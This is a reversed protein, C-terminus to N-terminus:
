DGLRTAVDAPLPVALFRIGGAPGDGFDIFDDGLRSTFDGHFELVVFDASTDATPVSPAFPGVISWIVKCMTAGRPDQASQPPGNWCSLPMPLILRTVDEQEDYWYFMEVSEDTAPPPGALLSPFRATIRDEVDRLRQELLSRVSQVQATKLLQQLDLREEHLQAVEHDSNRANEYAARVQEFNARASHATASDQLFAFVREIYVRLAQVQSQLVRDRSAVVEREATELEKAVGGIEDDVSRVRRRRERSEQDIDGQQKSYDGLLKERSDIERELDRIRGRLEDVEKQIASQPAVLAGKKAELEQLASRLSEREENRAALKQRLDDVKRRANEVAQEAPRAQERRLEDYSLM